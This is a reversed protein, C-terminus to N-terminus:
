WGLVTVTVPASDYRRAVQDAVLGYRVIGGGLYGRCLPRRAIKTGAGDNVLAGYSAVTGPTESLASGSSGHCRRWTLEKARRADIDAASDAGDDDVLAGNQDTNRQCWRRWGRRRLRPERCPRHRHEYSPRRRARSVGTDALMVAAFVPTLINPDVLVGVTISPPDNAAAGIRHLELVHVAIVELKIRASSGAGYIKPVPVPLTSASPEPAPSARNGSRREGAERRDIDREASRPAALCWVASRWGDRIPVMLLLPVTTPPLALPRSMLVPPTTFLLM